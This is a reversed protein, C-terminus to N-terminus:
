HAYDIGLGPSAVLFICPSPTDATFLRRRLRVRRNARCRVSRRARRALRPRPSTRRGDSPSSMILKRASSSAGADLSSRQAPRASCRSCATRARGLRAPRLARGAAVSANASHLRRGVASHMRGRHDPALPQKFRPRSTCPAVAERGEWFRELEDLLSTSSKRMRVPRVPLAARGAARCARALRDDVHTSARAAPAPRRRHVACAGRPRARGSRGAGSARWPAARRRRRRQCGFVPSPKAPARAFGRPTTAASIKSHSRTTRGLPYRTRMPQVSEHLRVLGRASTM